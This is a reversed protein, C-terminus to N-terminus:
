LLEDRGEQALREVAQKVDQAKSKRCVMVADATEVAVIDDVGIISIHKGTSYIVSNKTNICNVDGVAINDSADKPHIVHLMDWSGVDNWGFEAPIVVIDQSKEMIGYDISIKRIGTYVDQLVTEERDTDFAAQIKMLDAYIDPLLQEFRKLIVSAKWVFMGSNWLYRGSAVYEEATEVNPKEEFCLVKKILNEGEEFLIYGFGTASFTPRIGITVLQDTNGACEIAQLVVRRFANEDAIYHDAPFICMIGDGCRRIIEIAALGICAATNRAAPERIVNNPRIRTGAVQLVKDAQQASTVILINEPQIEPQLRNITENIMVDKGSLNLLQKPTTQRSLPWFRMGSGGAMIVGFTEM